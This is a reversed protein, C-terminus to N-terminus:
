TRDATILEAENVWAVTRKYCTSPTYVVTHIDCPLIEPSFNWSIAIDIQVHKSVRSTVWFCACNRVSGQGNTRNSEVLLTSWFKFLVLYPQIVNAHVAFDEVIVKSFNSSVYTRSMWVAQWLDLAGTMFRSYNRQTCIWDCTNMAVLHLCTIGLQIPM